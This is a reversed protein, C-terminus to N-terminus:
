INTDLFDSYFKLNSHKTHEKILPYKKDAPYNVKRSTPDKFKKGKNSKEQYKVVMFKCFNEIKRRTKHM